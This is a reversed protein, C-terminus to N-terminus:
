AGLEEAVAVALRHVQERLVTLQEEAALLGDAMARRAAAEVATAGVGGVGGALRHAARKWGEADGNTAAQELAALMEKADRVVLHAVERLDEESLDERLEKLVAPDLVNM